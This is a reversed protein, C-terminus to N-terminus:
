ATKKIRTFRKRASRVYDEGYDYANEALQVLVDQKFPKDLYDFVCAAWARQMKKTDRYGTLLIVPTDLGKARVNELMQLGDLNPMNIDSLIVNPCFTDISSLALQGDAAGKADWGAEEFVQILIEVLVAEDDVILIKKGMQAGFITPM